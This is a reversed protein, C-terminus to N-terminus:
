GITKESSYVTVTETQGDATIVTFVSKVRYTGSTLGTKSNTLSLATTNYATKTWPGGVTDWTWFYAHKELTQVVNISKLTVMESYNSTCEAKTGSIRLVSNKSASSIYRSSVESASITVAFLSFCMAACLLVAIIKRMM